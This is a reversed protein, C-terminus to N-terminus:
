GGYSSYTPGDFEPVVSLHVTGCDTCEKEYKAAVHKSMTAM